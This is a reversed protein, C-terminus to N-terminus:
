QNYFSKKNKARKTRKKIPLISRVANNGIGVTNIGTHSLEIYKGINEIYIDTDLQCTITMTSIKLDECIPRTISFDELKSFNRYKM